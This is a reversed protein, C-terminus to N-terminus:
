PLIPVYIDCILCEHGKGRNKMTNGRWLTVKLFYPVFFDWNSGEEDDYLKHALGGDNLYSNPIILM